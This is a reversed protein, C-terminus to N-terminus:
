LDPEPWYVNVQVSSLSGEFAGLYIQANVKLNQIVEIIPLYRPHTLAEEETLYSPIGGSLFIIPDVYKPSLTETKALCRELNALRFANITNSGTVNFDVSCTFANPIAKDVYMYVILPVQDCLNSAMIIFEYEGVTTPTGSLEGTTSNLSLGAPLKGSIEYKTADTAKFTYSFARNAYTSPYLYDVYIPSDVFEYKLSTTASGDSNTVTLTKTGVPASPLAILLENASASLVQASLDDVKVTSGILNTGKIALQGMVACVEPASISSITPPKPVYVPAPAPGGGGASPTKWIAYLTVTASSPAPINAGEAYKNNSGSCTTIGLALQASCWGDFEYGSPATYTNTSATLQSGAYTQDSMATGTGTNANYVYKNASWNATLTVPGSTVTGSKPYTSGATFTDAGASWWKFLYGEKTYTNSPVTFTENRNVTLPSAPSSGSGGGDDYIIDFSSLSANSAWIAYLTVNWSSTLNVSAGDNYQKTTATSTEAWGTFTYDTYLFANTPLVVAFATGTITEMTATATDANKNFVVTYSYATTSTACAVGSLSGLAGLNFVTWYAEPNSPNALTPDTRSSTVSAVFVKTQGTFPFCIKASTFSTSNVLQSVNKGSGSSDVIVKYGQLGSTDTPAVWSM